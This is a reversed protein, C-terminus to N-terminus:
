ATESSRQRQPVKTSRSTPPVTRDTAPDAAASAARDPSPTAAKRRRRPRIPAPADEGAQERDACKKAIYGAALTAGIGAIRAPLLRSAVFMTAAGILAGKVPDTKKESSFMAGIAAGAMRGLVGAM